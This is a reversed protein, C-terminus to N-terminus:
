YDRLDGEQIKPKIGQRGFSFAVPDAKVYDDQPYYYDPGPDM